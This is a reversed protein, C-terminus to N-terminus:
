GKCWTSIFHLKRVGHFSVIHLTVGGVERMNNKNTVIAVQYLVRVKHLWRQITLATTTCVKYIYFPLPLYPSPSPPLTLLFPEM